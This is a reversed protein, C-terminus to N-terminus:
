GLGELVRLREHLADGSLELEVCLSAVDIVDDTAQAVGAAQLVPSLEEYTVPAWSVLELGGRGPSVRARVKSRPGVGGTPFGHPLELDFGPRV